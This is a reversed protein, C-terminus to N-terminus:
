PSDDLLGPLPTIRMRQLALDIETIVQAIAPLLIEGRPGAVVYVDNAGPQLVEVLTGLYEGAVTEVRLGILEHIFYSEPDDRLVDADPTECSATFTNSTPAPKSAPSSSSGITATM